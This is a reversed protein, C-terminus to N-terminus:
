AAIPTQFLGDCHQWWSYSELGPTLPVRLACLSGAGASGVPDSETCPAACTQYKVALSEAAVASLGGSGTLRALTVLLHVVLQVTGAHLFKLTAPLIRLVAKWFHKRAFDVIRLLNADSQTM